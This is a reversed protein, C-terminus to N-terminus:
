FPWASVWVNDDSMTDLLLTFLHIKDWLKYERHSKWEPPSALEKVGEKKDWIKM